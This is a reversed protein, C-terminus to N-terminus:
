SSIESIVQHILGTQFLYLIIIISNVINLLLTGFAFTGLTKFLAAKKERHFLGFYVFLSMIFQLLGQLITLAISQSSLIVMILFIISTHAYVYTNIALHETFNFGASRFFLFSAISMILINIAGMVNRYKILQDNVFSVLAMKTEQSLKFSFKVKDKGSEKSILGIQDKEKKSEDLPLSTEVNNKLDESLQGIDVIYYGTMSGIFITLGIILLFYKLPSTVTYRRTDLYSKITKAPHITLGKMLSLVGKEFNFSGAIEKLLKSITLREIQKTQTFDIKDKKWVELSPKTNVPTEIPDKNPTPEM